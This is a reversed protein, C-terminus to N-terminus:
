SAAPDVGSGDLLAVFTELAVGEAIALALEHLGVGSEQLAALREAQGARVLHGALTIDGWRARLLAPGGSAILADIRDSAPADELQRREELSLERGRPPAPTGYRWFLRAPLGDAVMREASARYGAIDAALAQELANGRERLFDEIELRKREAMLQSSGSPKALADLCDPLSVAEAPPDRRDPLAAVTEGTRRVAQDDHESVPVERLLFFVGALTALGGALAGAALARRM